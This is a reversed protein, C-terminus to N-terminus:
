SRERRSDVSGASSTLRVADCVLFDWLHVRRFTRGVYKPEKFKLLDNNVNLAFCTDAFPCRSFSQKLWQAEEGDPNCDPDDRVCVSRGVWWEASNVKHVPVSCLEAVTVMADAVAGRFATVTRAKRNKGESM